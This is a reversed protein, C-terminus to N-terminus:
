CRKTCQGARTVAHQKKSSTQDDQRRCTMVTALWYDLVTIEAGGRAKQPSCSSESYLSHMNGSSRLEVGSMKMRVVALGCICISGNKLTEVHVGAGDDSEGEAGGSDRCCCEGSLDTAAISQKALEGRGDVTWNGIAFTDCAVHELLLHLGSASNSRRM